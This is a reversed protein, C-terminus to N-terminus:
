VRGAVKLKQKKIDFFARQNKKDYPSGHGERLAACGEADAGRRMGREGGFNWEGRCGCACDVCEGFRAMTRWREVSIPVSPDRLSDPRKEPYVAKVHLMYLLALVVNRPLLVNDPHEEGKIGIKVIQNWTKSLEDLRM